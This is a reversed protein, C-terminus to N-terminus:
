REPYANTQFTGVVVFRDSPYPVDITSWWCMSYGAM